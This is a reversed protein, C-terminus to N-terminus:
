ASKLGFIFLYFGIIFPFFRNIFSFFDIINPKDTFRSAFTVKQRGDEGFAVM